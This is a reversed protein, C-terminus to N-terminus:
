KKKQRPYKKAILKIKMPLFSVCTDATFLLHTMLIVFAMVSKTSIKILNHAKSFSSNSHAMYPVNTHIQKTKDAIRISM